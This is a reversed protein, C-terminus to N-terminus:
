FRKSVLDKFGMVAADGLALHTSSVLDTWGGCFAPILIVAFQSGRLHRVLGTRFHQADIFVKERFLFAKGRGKDIKLIM